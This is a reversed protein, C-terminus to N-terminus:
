LPRLRYPSISRLPRLLYPVLTTRGDKHVDSWQKCSGPLLDENKTEERILTNTSLFTGTLVVTRHSDIKQEKGM